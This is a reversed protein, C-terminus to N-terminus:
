WGLADLRDAIPANYGAGFHAVHVLLHYLQLAPRRRQWGDPLPWTATYADLLARPVGGFLETFALEHERDAYCVAPDILWRGDVINGSWLDGHILSAPPRAPLLEYLPGELAALARRRLGADLAPASLHPRLRHEAYFERWDTTWPNRQPLRGILNDRHWGFRGDPSTSRHLEALAAGLGAWDPPGSVHEVVLVGGARDPDPEVALVGPVPAGAAALAALGDAELTPDYPTRKVVVRAGRDTEVVWADCISGGGLPRWSRATGVEAPLRPTM